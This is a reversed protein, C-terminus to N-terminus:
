GFRVEGTLIGKVASGPIAEDRAETGQRCEGSSVLIYYIRSRVKRGM